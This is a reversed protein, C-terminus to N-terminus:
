SGIVYIRNRHVACGAHVRTHQMPSLSHWLDTEPNYSDCLSLAYIREYGIMMYPENVCRFRVCFHIKEEIRKM